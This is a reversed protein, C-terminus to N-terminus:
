GGVAQGVARVYSEIEAETRRETVAVLIQNARAKDYRGLDLGGLIGAKLLGDLVEAAPKATEIVFENFVPYEPVTVGKVARLKRRLLDAKRVCLEGARRLGALGLCSMYFHALVACLASNTCINSTAKERRIHQERAQLTLTFARNGKVDLTQGVFGGRCAGCWNRGAPLTASTRAASSCRYAWRRARAASSTRGWREPRSCWAASSHIRRRWWCRALRAPGDAAAFDKVPKPTFGGKAAAAQARELHPQYIDCLAVPQVEPVKMAYGLNGSGMAGLGIFGVAIRDNAGKVNGTFLSTTFAAAAATLVDRRPDANKTDM